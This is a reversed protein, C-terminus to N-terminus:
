ANPLRWSRRLSRGSSSKVPKPSKKSFGTRWNPRSPCAFANSPPAITFSVRTAHTDTTACSSHKCAWNCRTRTGFSTPMPEKKPRALKIIWRAFMWRPSFTMGLGSRWWIWRQWWVWATRVWRCLVPTSQRRSRLRRKARRKRGKKALSSRRALPNTRLKKRQSQKPPLCQAMALIWGSTSPMAACPTPARSM